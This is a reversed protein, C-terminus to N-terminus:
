RTFTTVKYFVALLWSHYICSLFTVAVKNYIPGIFLEGLKNKEHLWSLFINLVLDATYMHSEENITLSIIQM